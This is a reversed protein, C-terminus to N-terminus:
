KIKMWVKMVFPAPFLKAGLKQMKVTFGLVSIDKGKRSDKLAKRVVDYPEYMPSFHTVADSNKTKRAVDFFETRVWGPCISTVSIKRPKLEVNLARSFSLVATKGTAYINFYPLPQFCSASGMNIIRAGESMYPLCDYCMDILSNLNLALMTKIEQRTMDLFAGFKGFGSANVLIRIDPKEEELMRCLTDRSEDKLLDLPVPRVNDFEEKLENLLQVRRAIVWIEDLQEGAAIQKVFEKGIGSSAGTVVAIKM